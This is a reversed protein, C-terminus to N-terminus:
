VNANGFGRTPEGNEDYVYVRATGDVTVAIQARRTGWDDTLTLGVAGNEQLYIQARIRDAQNRINFTTGGGDAEAALRARIRGSSDRLDLRAAGEANVGVAIRPTADGDDAQEYFALTVSGDGRSGLQALVKNGDDVLQFHKAQVINANVDQEAV